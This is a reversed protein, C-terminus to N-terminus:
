IKQLENWLRVNKRAFECTKLWNIYDKDITSLLMGKYKGWPMKYEPKEVRSLFSQIYEHNKAFDANKLWYCYEPDSAIINNIHEEAYKGKTIFGCEDIM